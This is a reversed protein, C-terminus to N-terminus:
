PLCALLFQATKDLDHNLRDLEETLPAVGSIPMPWNVPDGLALATAPAVLTKAIPQNAPTPHKAAPRVWWFLGILVAAAGATAPLWLWWGRTRRTPSPCRAARVARMISGHLSPPIASESPLNALAQDLASCKGAFGRVEESEAIAKRVSASLPNASDQAASIRLKALWARM